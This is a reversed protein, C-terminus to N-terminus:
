AAETRGALRAKIDAVKAGVAVPGAVSEAHHRAQEALMQATREAADSAVTIPSKREGVMRLCTAKLYERAGAPGHLVTSRVAALVVDEGHQKVLAGVFSGCQERPLGDGELVSKGATWLETKSMEAPPKGGSADAESSESPSPTHIPIPADIRSGDALPEAIESGDSQWRKAAGKAGAEAKATSTKKARKLEFSLRKQTISLGDSKFFKLLVARSTKWKAAPLRTITQLQGDDDPLEGDGKWMAMLLLLYAGHQETTLHSTDGLYKDVLLPMWTDVKKVGAM